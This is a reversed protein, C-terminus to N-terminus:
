AACGRCLSIRRMLWPLFAGAACVAVAGASIAAGIRLSQPRYSWAVTHRGEPVRVARFAYNAHIIRARVGDVRAEWGPYRNESLVVYGPAGMDAAIEIHEDAYRTITVRDPTANTATSDLDAFEPTVLMTTRPDFAREYLRAIINSEAAVEVCHVAFARPLYTSREVVRVGREDIVVAYKVNHLDLMRDMNTGGGCRGVACLWRILGAMNGELTHLGFYTGRMRGEFAPGGSIRFVGGTMERQWATIYPDPAYPFGLEPNHSALCFPRTHGIIDAAALLALVVAAWPAPL